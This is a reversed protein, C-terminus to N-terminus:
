GIAVRGLLTAVHRLARLRQKVGAPLWRRALARLARTGLVARTRVWWGAAALPSIGALKWQACLVRAETPTRNRMAWRLDRRWSRRVVEEAEGAEPSGEARMRDLQRRRYQHAAVVQKWPARSIQQGHWRYTATVRHSCVFPHRAALRIWLDVDTACRGGDEYGGVDLVASRRMVVTSQSHPSQTLAAFLVRQPAGAPFAPTLTGSRKGTHRAASSAVAAEPHRDLLAAVEELHWPEWTDDADLMAVLDGTAARVGANRASADGGNRPMRVLRVRADRRAWEEALEASGDTSCDDVVIVERPSRTQALVSALAEGLYRVGNFCPIVVSVSLM